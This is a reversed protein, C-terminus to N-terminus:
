NQTKFSKLDFEVLTRIRATTSGLYAIGISKLKRGSVNEGNRFFCSRSYIDKARVFCQWFVVNKRVEGIMSYESELVNSLM